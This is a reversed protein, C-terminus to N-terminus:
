LFKDPDARLSYTNMLDSQPRTRENGISAASPRDPHETQHPVM